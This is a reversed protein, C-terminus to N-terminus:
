PAAPAFPLPAGVADRFTGAHLDNGQSLATMAPSSGAIWGDEYFFKKAFSISARTL